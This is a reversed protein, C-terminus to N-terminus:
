TNVMFRFPHEREGSYASLIYNSYFADLIEISIFIPLVIMAIGIYQNRFLRVSDFLMNQLM